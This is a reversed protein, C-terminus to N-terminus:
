DDSIIENSMFCKNRVKVKNMVMSTFKISVKRSGMKMLYFNYKIMPGNCYLSIM